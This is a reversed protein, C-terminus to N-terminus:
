YLTSSIHNIFSVVNVIALINVITNKVINHGAVMKDLNVSLVEILLMIAM